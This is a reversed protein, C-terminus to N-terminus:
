MLTLYVTKTLTYSYSHDDKIRVTEVANDPLDNLKKDDPFHLSSLTFGIQKYAEVRGYHWFTEVDDGTYTRYNSKDIRLLTQSGKNIEIQWDVVNGPVENFSEVTLTFIWFSPKITSGDNSTIRIDSKKASMKASSVLDSENECGVSLLALVVVYLVAVLFRKMM